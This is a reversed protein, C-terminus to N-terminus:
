INMKSYEFYEIKKNLENENMLYLCVCCLTTQYVCTIRYSMKKVKLTSFGLFVQIIM